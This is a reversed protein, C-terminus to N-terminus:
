KIIGNSLIIGAELDSPRCQVRLAEIGKQMQDSLAMTESQDHTVYVATISAKQQISCSETRMTVRLKSDLNSFRSMSCCYVPNWCKHVHWLLM